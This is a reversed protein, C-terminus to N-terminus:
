AQVMYKIAATNVCNSDSRLFAIFAVQDAEAYREELRRLRVAGADRVIFKKFDGFLVHKTATVPVNATLGTMAQNVYVPFGNCTLNSGTGNTGAGQAYSERLLPRGNSDKLMLAYALVDDKMMYGCSPAKRYAPDVSHALRTLEDATFAAAVATTIGASACTVIGKPQSTGTGTTFYTSQVRGIRTGAEGFVLSDVDFDADQILENPVLIGKSSFKYAGFTISAFSPDANTATATNIALLEGTNGTDDETPWPLDAGNQTQIERCVGRVNSFDVLKSELEHSYDQAILYGGGSTTVTLARKERLREARTAPNGLRVVLEKARPNLGTRKCAEAHEKTLPIGWQRRAWAQRALRVDREQRALDAGDGAPQRRHNVNGRGASNAGGDAAPDGGDGGDGPEGDNTLMQDIASIDAEVTQIQTTLASFDAKLKDFASKEDSTMARSEKRLADGLKSLEERIKGRKERLEKLKFTKLM